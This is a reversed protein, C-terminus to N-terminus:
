MKLLWVSRIISKNKRILYVLHFLSIYSVRATLLILALLRVSKIKCINYLVKYTEFMSLGTNSSVLDSKNNEEIKNNKEKKFLLIYFSTIIFIAGFLYM